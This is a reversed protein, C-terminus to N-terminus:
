YILFIFTNMFFNFIIGGLKFLPGATSQSYLKLAFKVNYM